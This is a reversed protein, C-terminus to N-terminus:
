GARERVYAGPAPDQVKHRRNGLKRPAPKLAGSREALWRDWDEWWTGPHESATHLWADGDAPYEDSVHYRSRPNGPPNIIAAIHGSSSLVFRTDGGLMKVSRYCHQWPTLHDTEAGVAYSDVEIDSVDIGSGLVQM